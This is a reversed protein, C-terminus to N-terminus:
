AHRDQCFPIGLEPNQEAARAQNRRGANPIPTRLGGAGRARVFRSGNASVLVRDKVTLILPEGFFRRADEVGPLFQKDSSALKLKNGKLVVPLEILGAEKDKFQCSIASIGLKLDPKKDNVYDGRPLPALPRQAFRSGARVARPTMAAEM